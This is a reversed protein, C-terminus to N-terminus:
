KEHAFGPSKQLTGFYLIRIANELAALALQRGTEGGEILEILCDFIVTAMGARRPKTKLPKFLIMWIKDDLWAATKSIEDDDPM